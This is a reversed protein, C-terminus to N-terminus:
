KARPPPAPQQPSFSPPLPGIKTWTESQCLFAILCGTLTLHNPPEFKIEGNYTKGNEPNFLEGKWRNDGIKKASRLIMPSESGDRMPLAGRACLAGGCDFFLMKEQHNDRLWTGYVSDAALAPSAALALAAIRALSGTM